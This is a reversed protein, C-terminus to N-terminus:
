HFSKPLFFCVRCLFTAFHLQLIELLCGINFFIILKIWSTRFQDQLVQRSILVLFLSTVASFRGKLCPVKSKWIVSSNKQNTIPPSQCWSQGWLKGWSQGWSLSIVYGHWCWSKVWSRGWSNVWSCGWSWDASSSWYWSWCGVGLSHTEEEAGGHGFFRIQDNIM